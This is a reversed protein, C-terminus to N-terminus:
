ANPGATERRAEPGPNAATPVVLKKIWDLDGKAWVWALGVVLILVFALIEFFALAGVGSKVFKKFVLAVPLMLAIEVEFIVFVLAVIYFRPNFNFWASGIPKEGCEYVEAKQKTPAKPRVLWGLGLLFLFVFIVSVLAFVLVNAFDFAM